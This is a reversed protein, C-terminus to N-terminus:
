NSSKKLENKLGTFSLCLRVFCDVVFVTSMSYCTHSRNWYTLLPCTDMNEPESIHPHHHCFVFLIILLAFFIFSFKFYRSLWPLYDMKQKKPKKQMLHYRSRCCVVNDAKNADWTSDSSSVPHSVLSSVAVCASVNSNWGCDSSGHQQRAAAGTRGGRGAKITLPKKLHSCGRRGGAVEVWGKGRWRRM